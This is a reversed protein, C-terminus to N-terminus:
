EVELHKKLAQTLEEIPFNTAFGDDGLEIYKRNTKGMTEFLTSIIVGEIGEAKAKLWANWMKNQANAAIASCGCDQVHFCNPCEIDSPKKIEQSM